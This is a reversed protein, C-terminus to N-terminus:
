VRLITPLTLHTYSVPRMDALGSTSDIKVMTGKSFYSSHLTDRFRHYIPGVVIPDISTLYSVVGPSGIPVM